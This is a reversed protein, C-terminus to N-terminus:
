LNPAQAHKTELMSQKDCNVGLRAQISNKQDDFLNISHMNYLKCSCRKELIFDAKSLIQFLTVHAKSVNMQKLNRMFLRGFCLRRKVPHKTPQKKAVRNM